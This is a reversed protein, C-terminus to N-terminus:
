FTPDIFFTDVMILETDTKYHRTNPLIVEEENLIQNCLLVTIEAFRDVNRILKESPQLLDLKDNIIETIMDNTSFVIDPMESGMNLLKDIGAETVTNNGVTISLTNFNDIPVTPTIRGSRIYPTLIDVIGTYIQEQNRSGKESLLLFNYPNESVTLNQITKEALTRGMLEYDFTLYYFYDRNNEILRDYTIIQINQEIVKPTINNVDNNFSYIIILRLEESLSEEIKSNQDDQTSSYYFNAKHSNQQFKEELATGHERGRPTDPLFIAIPTVVEQISRGFLSYPLFLLLLLIYRM